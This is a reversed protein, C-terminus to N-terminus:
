RFYARRDLHTKRIQYRCRLRNLYDDYGKDQSIIFRKEYKDSQLSDELEKIIRRDVAQDGANVMYVRVHPLQASKLKQYLGDQSVYVRIEDSKDAKDYGILDQYVHNDGDVFYLNKGHKTEAKKRQTKRKTKDEDDIDSGYRLYDYYAEWDEWSM